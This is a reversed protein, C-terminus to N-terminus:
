KTVGGRINKQPLRKLPGTRPKMMDGLAHGMKYGLSSGKPKAPAKGLASDAARRVREAGGDGRGKQEFPKTTIPSVPAGKAAREPKKVKAPKAKPEAKPAPAEKPAKAAAKEARSFYRRTKNTGGKPQNKALILEYDVGEKGEAM